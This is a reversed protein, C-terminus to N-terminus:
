ELNMVRELKGLPVRLWPQAAPQGGFTVIDSLKLDHAEGRRLGCGALLEIVLRELPDATTRALQVMRAADVDDFAKPLPDPLRPVDGPLVLPRKPAEPWEWLELLHFFRRLCTLAHHRTSLSWQGQGPRCGPEAEDRIWHLYPEIHVRRELQALETVEPHHQTLWRFFAALALTESKVTSPRLTTRRQALYRITVAHLAPWGERLFGLRAEETGLGPQRGILHPDPPEPWLGAHYLVAGAAWPWLRRRQCAPPPQGQEARRTTQHQRVEESLALLDTMTLEAPTKGTQAAARTVTHCVGHAVDDVYGLKRATSTLHELLEPWALRGVEIWRIGAPMERELAALFGAPFPQRDTLALWCVFPRLGSAIV